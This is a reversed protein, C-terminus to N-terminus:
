KKENGDNMMGQSIKNYTTMIGDSDVDLDYLDTWYAVVKMISGDMAEDFNIQGYAEKVDQSAEVVIMAMAQTMIENMLMANIGNSEAKSILQKFKPHKRNLEVQINSADFPDEMPDSWFHRIQWLPGGPYEGETIPFTSGEGDVVITTKFLPAQSLNMGINNAQFPNKVQLDKLFFFFELVIRGRIWSSDLQYNFQMVKEDPSDVIEDDLMVTTHFRSTLSYIHAAIGIKNQPDTVKSKGFLASPNGIRFKQRYHLSALNANWEDSYKNVEIYNRHEGPFDVYTTEGESGLFTLIPDEAYINAHLDDSYNENIKQYLNIEPM